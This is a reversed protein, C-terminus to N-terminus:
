SLGALAPQEMHALTAPALGFNPPMPAGLFGALLAIFAFHHIAHSLVYLAERDLRSPTEIIAPTAYGSLVRVRVPLFERAEMQTDFVARLRETEQRAAECSTELQTGRVRRDYEVVASGLANELTQFHNLVHRYHRGISSDKLQPVSQSFQGDDLGALLSSGQLLVEDLTLSLHPRAKM